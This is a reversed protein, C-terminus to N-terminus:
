QQIEERNKKWAKILDIYNMSVSDVLEEDTIKNQMWLEAPDYFM